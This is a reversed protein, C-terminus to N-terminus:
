KEKVITVEGSNLTVVKGQSNLLLAGNSNIDLVTGEIFSNGLNLKINKGILSSYARIKQTLKELQCIKYDEYLIEFQELFKRILVVRSIEAGNERRVSTAIDKIEDPFDSETHNVNIGIGVIIHHIKEKEASLETLIGATKKGNLLVDNPWKIQVNADTLEALSNSLAVATMISLGPAKEPIFDPKLIISLYIGAKMKSFWVRGLRGKGKTQEEATIITGEIEGSDAFQQATDNTSKVSRYSHIKKGIYNTKLNYTIETDILADPIQVLSVSDDTLHLKYGWSKLEILARIVEEKPINLKKEIRNFCLSETEKLLNLVAETLSPTTVISIKPM